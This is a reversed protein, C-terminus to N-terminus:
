GKALTLSFIQFVGAEKLLRACENITSGTTFVDDVLYITRVSPKKKIIYANKPNILRQEIQLHSQSPNDRVKFLVRTSYPIKLSRSLSKVLIDSTNFGRVAYRNRSIPVPVLLANKDVVFYNSFYDSLMRALFYFVCAKKYFKGQIVLKQIINEYTFVSYNRDFYRKNHYQSVCYTCLGHRYLSYYM